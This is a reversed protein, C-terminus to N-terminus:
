TRSTNRRIADLCDLGAALAYLILATVFAGLIIVWGGPALGLARDSADVSRGQGIGILMGLLLEVVALFKILGAVVQAETSGSAGGPRIAPSSGTPTPTDGREYAEHAADWDRIRKLFGM